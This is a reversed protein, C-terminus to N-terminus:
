ISSQQRDWWKIWESAMAQMDGRRDPPVPDAGTIAKLAWFWLAPEISLENMIFPLVEKGLGIIQQYAPHMAIDTISSMFMTDKQWEYKLRSFKIPINEIQRSIPALYQNLCDDILNKIAESESGVAPAGHLFVPPTLEINLAAVCPNSM